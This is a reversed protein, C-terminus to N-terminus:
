KLTSITYGRLHKGQYAHRAITAPTCSMWAAAETLSAFLHRVGDPDLIVVPVRRERMAGVAQRSSTEARLCGCSRCSGRRLAYGTTVFVTGCDCRCKWRANRSLETVGAFELVTVRGYRRGVMDIRRTM